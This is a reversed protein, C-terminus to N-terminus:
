FGDEDVPVIIKSNQFIRVAYQKGTQVEVYGPALKYTSIASNDDVLVKDMSRYEPQRSLVAVNTERYGSIIDKILLYTSQATVLVLLFALLTLLFLMAKKWVKNLLQKNRIISLPLEVTLAYLVFLGGFMEYLLIRRELLAYKILIVSFLIISILIYLIRIKNRIRM